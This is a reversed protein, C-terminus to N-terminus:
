AGPAVTRRSRWLPALAILGLVPGPLLSWAIAAGRSAVNSTGIQISTMTFALGVANQLALASGVIRPGCARASLASLASFHPFDAVM